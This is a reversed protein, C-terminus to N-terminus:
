ILSDPGRRRVPRAALPSREAGASIAAACHELWRRVGTLGGEAYGVLAREYAGGAALHGAPVVIVGRPDVGGAMLIAQEAARAVVGNGSEFPAITILEAHAVAARVIASASTTATLLDYLGVLRATAESRARGLTDDDVLGRGWLAHLRALAQGPAVGILEAMAPLESLMRAVGAAEASEPSWGEIAASSRAAALVAEASDAASIARMGRDRLITDVAARAAALASPVGEVRALDALPDNM